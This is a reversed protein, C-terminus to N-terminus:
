KPLCSESLIQNVYRVVEIWSTTPSAESVVVQLDASLVKIHGDYCGVAIHSGDNRWAVARCKKGLSVMATQQMAKGDYTRITM